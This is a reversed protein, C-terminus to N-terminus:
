AGPPKPGKPAPTQPPKPLPNAALFRDLSDMKEQLAKELEPQGSAGMVPSVLARIIVIQESLNALSATVYYPPLRGPNDRVMKFLQECSKQSIEVTAALYALAVQRFEEPAQLLKESTTLMYVSGKNLIDLVDPDLRNKLLEMDESMLSRLGTDILAAAIAAPHKTSLDSLIKGTQLAHAFDGPLARPDNTLFDYAERVEPDDLLGTTEFSPFSSAKNEAVKMGFSELQRLARKSDDRFGQLKKAYLDELEACGTRDLLARTLADYATPDPVVPIRLDGKGTGAQLNLIQQDIDKLMDSHDDFSVIASALCLRRVPVSAHTIHAYGTKAHKRSERILDAIDRGFRKEMVGLSSDPMLALLALSLLKNDGAGTNQLVQAVRLPYNSERYQPPLSDANRSATLFASLVLPDGPLGTDKFEM